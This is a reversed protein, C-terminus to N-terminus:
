NVSCSGLAAMTQLWDFNAVRSKGKSSVIVLVILWNFHGLLQNLHYSTFIGPPINLSKIIFLIFTTFVLAHTFVVLLFQCSLSSLPVSVLMPFTSTCVSEHSPLPFIPLFEHLFKPCVLILPILFLLSLSPSSLFLPTLHLPLPVFPTFLLPMICLKLTFLFAPM